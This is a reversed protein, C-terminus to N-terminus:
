RAVCIDRRWHPAARRMCGAPEGQTSLLTRWAPTVATGIHRASEDVYTADERYCGRVLRLRLVPASIPNAAIAAALPWTGPRNGGSDSTLVRTIGLVVGTTWTM